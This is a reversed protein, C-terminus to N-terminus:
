RHLRFQRPWSEAGGRPRPYERIQAVLKRAHCRHRGTAVGDGQPGSVGGVPRSRRKQQRPLSDHRRAEEELVFRQVELYPETIEIGSAGDEGVVGKWLTNDCDLVLVKMPSCKLAHILRALALGLGAFFRATYPVHGIRDGEPDHVSATDWSAVWAMSLVHVSPTTAVETRLRDELARFLRRVEADGTLIPSPPCMSLVIPVPTTAAAGRIAAGLDRVNREVASRTEATLEAIADAGSLWDEFRILVVNVGNRNRAFRGSPDLLEQFVQGYPVVETPLALRAEQLLLSLSETIPNVTFTAAIVVGSPAPVVNEGPATLNAAMM